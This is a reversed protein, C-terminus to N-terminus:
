DSIIGMERLASMEEQSLATAKGLWYPVDFFFSGDYAVVEAGAARARSAVDLLWPRGSTSNKYKREIAATSVSDVLGPVGITAFIIFPVYETKDIGYKGLFKPTVGSGQIFM